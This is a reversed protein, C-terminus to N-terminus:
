IFEEISINMLGALKYAVRLTMPENNKKYAHFTQKSIRLLHCLDEISMNITYACFTLYEM